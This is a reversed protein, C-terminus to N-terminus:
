YRVDTHTFDEGVFALRQDMDMALAYSYVDRLNLAAPHGSGKGYDQYARSALKAQEGTFPLVKVNLAELVRMCDRRGYPPLRHMAVASLEVLTAASIYSQEAAIERALNQYGPEELLISMVASTDVIM